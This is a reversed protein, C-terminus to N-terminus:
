HTIVTWGITDETVDTKINDRRGVDMGIAWGEGKHKFKRAMKPLKDKM